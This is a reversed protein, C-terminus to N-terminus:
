CKLTSISGSGFPCAGDHQPILGRALHEDMTGLM